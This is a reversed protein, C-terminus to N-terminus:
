KANTFRNKDPQAEEDGKASCFTRRSCIRTLYKKEGFMKITHRKARTLLSFSGGCRARPLAPNDAGKVFFITM